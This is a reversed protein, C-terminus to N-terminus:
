ASTVAVDGMAVEVDLTAAGGGITVEETVGGALWGSEPRTINPLVVRGLDAKTRIRVSSGKDLHLKVSGAECRIRSAGQDLVGTARVSGAAVKIDLPGGVSRLEAGGATVNVRLPGRVGVVTVQGATLDVALPLDPRMRVTFSERGPWWDPGLDALWFPFGGRRARHGFQFSFGSLHQESEIVLTDGERRASHPGDVVAERVGPDGVIRTQRFTGQVRVRLIPRDGDDHAGNSGAQESGRTSHHGALRAAAEEPRMRGEAVATLIERRADADM